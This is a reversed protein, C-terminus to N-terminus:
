EAARRRPPPGTENHSFPPALLFFAGAARQPPPRRPRPRGARRRGRFFHPPPPPLAIPRGRAAPAGTNGHARPPRSRLRARRRNRPRQLYFARPAPVIRGASTLSRELVFAHHM